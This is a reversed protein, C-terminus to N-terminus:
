LIDSYIVGSVWLLLWVSMNIYVCAWIDLGDLACDIIYYGGCIDLGRINIEWALDFSLGM